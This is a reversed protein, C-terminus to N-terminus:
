PPMRERRQQREQRERRERDERLDNLVKTVIAAHEEEDEESIKWPESIEMQNLTEALATLFKVRRQKRRSITLTTDPRLRAIM